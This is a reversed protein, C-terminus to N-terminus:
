SMDALFLTLGIAFIYEQPLKEYGDIEIINTGAKRYALCDQDSGKHCFICNKVSPLTFYNHFDLEYIGNKGLRPKRTCLEISQNEQNSNSVADLQFDYVSARQTKKVSVKFKESSGLSHEKLQLFTYNQNSILFYDPSLDRMQPKNRKSIPIPKKPYRNKTKAFFLPSTGNTMTFYYSIGKLSIKM